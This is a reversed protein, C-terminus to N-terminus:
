GGTPKIDLRVPSALNAAGRQRAQEDAKEVVGPRLL